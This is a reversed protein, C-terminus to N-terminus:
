EFSPSKPDLTNGNWCAAHRALTKVFDSGGTGVNHPNTPTSKASHRFIYEGAYQAHQELFKRGGDLVLYYLDVLFPHTAHHKFVFKQISFTKELETVDAIFARHGKPMYAHMEHVYKSLWDTPYVIGLAAACTPIISSQAGTEGYFAQPENYVGEYIVGSTLAPNNKQGNIYPRVREFFIESSCYEPMRLFSTNMAAFGDKIEMLCTVVAHIDNAKVGRLGQIIATPVKGMRREIDVHVLIFWSEDLGGLLYQLVMLNGLEVPSKKDVREWNVLAYDQYSLIPPVDLMESIFVMPKAIGAPIRPCINGVKTEHPSGIVYAQILTALTLRALKAVAPNEQFQKQIVELTGISGEVQTVYYQSLNDIATRFTTTGFYRPANHRFQDLKRFYEHQWSPLETQPDPEPLFGLTPSIQYSSLQM